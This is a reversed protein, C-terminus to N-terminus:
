SGGAKRIAANFKDALDQKVRDLEDLRKRKEEANLDTRKRVLAEQTRVRGMLTEFNRAMPALKIEARHEALYEKQEELTSTKQMDRLTAARQTAEKAFAYASDADAGGYKRQFTSGIIPTETLKREPAEGKGEGRMLSSAAAMIAIPATGFYGRALHEIQVPSMPLVKALAKAAETTSATFRAEPDRNQMSPSEINQGSFFNKNTYVELLPKIAQPMFLSSYGPVSSLFMDRLAKLQQKNDTEAKM